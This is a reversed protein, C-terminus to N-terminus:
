PEPAIAPVSSVDFRLDNAPLAYPILTLSLSRYVTRGDTRHACSEEPRCAHRVHRGYTDDRAVPPPDRLDVHAALPDFPPRPSPMAAAPDHSVDDQHDVTPVSHPSRPTSPPREGVTLCNSRRDGGPPLLERFPTMTSLTESKPQCANSLAEAGPRDYRGCRTVSGMKRENSCSGGPLVRRELSSM